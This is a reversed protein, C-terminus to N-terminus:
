IYMINLINFKYYIIDRVGSDQFYLLILNRDPIDISVFENMKSSYGRFKWIVCRARYNIM